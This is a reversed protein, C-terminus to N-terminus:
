WWVQKSNEYTFIREEEGETLDKLWLIYNKPTNEYCLFTTNAIKQGLSKWGDQWYFLEYTNGIQIGNMDNRAIFRIKGIEKKTNLDLGAWSYDSIKSDFYTLTNGDFAAEKTCKPNDLYSGNTGIIKAKLPTTEDGRQYFEIEARAKIFLAKAHMGSQEFLELFRANETNNLRVMVCNTAPDDEQPRGGKGQKRSIKKEM